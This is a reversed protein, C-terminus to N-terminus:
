GGIKIPVPFRAQARVPEGQRTPPTFRWKAVQSAVIKEFEPLSSSEVSSELVRGQEDLKILLVVRGSVARRKLRRPFNLNSGPLPRPVQDLDSFDIFDETGLAAATSAITPMSFDGVLAGGTGPNLAIDLQALSLSPPEAELEPPPEEEEPPPLDEVIEEVEPPTYTLVKEVVDGEPVPREGLLQIAAMLAFLAFAFVVGMLVSVSSDKKSSQIQFHHTSM